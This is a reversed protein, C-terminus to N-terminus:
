TSSKEKILQLMLSVVQSRLEKQPPALDFLDAYWLGDAALRILTALAPDLGDKEIRQQWDQYYERVPLLLEPNNAMAAILGSGVSSNSQEESCTTHVFARTWKGTSEEKGEETAREEWQKTYFDLMFRVMGVILAEKSKFHYLLGGKSVEAEQAVMELTLKSVGEREVLDCAAKLIRERTSMTTKPEM